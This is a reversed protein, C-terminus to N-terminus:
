TTRRGARDHRGGESSSESYTHALEEGWRRAREVEGDVLPGEVDLVYFSHPRGVVTFGHRRLVKAAGRAASGPLHRVQEARTDFTATLTGPRSGLADLWERVGAGRSVVQDGVRRRADERTSPRTMGFAHTPGGVVLLDVGADLREPADGVETVTVDMAPRLGAAIARAIKETNGFMSEFVVVASM